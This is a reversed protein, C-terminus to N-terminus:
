LVKEIIKPAVLNVTSPKSKGTILAALKDGLSVFTEEAIYSFRALKSTFILHSESPLTIPTRKIESVDGGITKEILQSGGVKEVLLTIPEKKFGFSLNRNQLSQTNIGLNISMTKEVKQPTAM